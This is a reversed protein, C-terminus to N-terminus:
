SQHEEVISRGFAALIAFNDKLEALGPLSTAGLEPDRKGGM